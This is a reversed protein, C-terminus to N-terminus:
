GPQPRKGDAKCGPQACFAGGSSEAREPELGTKLMIFFVSL